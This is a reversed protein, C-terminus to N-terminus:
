YVLFFVPDPSFLLSLWLLFLGFALALGLEALPSLVGFEVGAGSALCFLAPWAFAM